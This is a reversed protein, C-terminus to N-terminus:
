ACALQSQPLQKLWSAVAKKQREAALNKLLQPAVDSFDRIGAPRIKDCRLLHWGLPSALIRCEGPNMEFLAADLQPYLQGRPVWGLDGDQLATPCESHRLALASFSGPADALQAALVCAEAHVAAESKGPLADNVTLLIHAARRAEPVTFRAHHQWYFIEADQLTVQPLSAAVCALIADVRLERAMAERLLAEDLGNAALDARYRTADPYRERILKLAAVIEESDVRCAQGQASTLIREELQWQRLAEARIARREVESLVSLAKQHRSQALRFELYPLTKM